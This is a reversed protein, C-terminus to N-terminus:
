TKHELLQFLGPATSTRMMRSPNLDSEVKATAVLYNFSEGTAQSATRIIGTVATRSSHAAEIQM